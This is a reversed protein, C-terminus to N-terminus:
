KSQPVVLLVFGTIVVVTFEITEEDEEEVPTDYKDEEEDDDGITEDVAIGTIEDEDVPILEEDCAICLKVVVPVTTASLETDDEVPDDTNDEEEDEEEEEKDEEEVPEFAAKDVATVVTDNVTLTEPTTFKTCNSEHDDSLIRTLNDGEEIICIGSKWPSSGFVVVGFPILKVL